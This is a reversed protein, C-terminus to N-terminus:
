FRTLKPGDDGKAGIFPRSNIGAGVIRYLRQPDCSFSIAGTSVRTSDVEKWGDATHVYVTYEEEPQFEGLDCAKELECDFADKGADTGAPNALEVQKGAVLAILRDKSAEAQVCLIFDRRKGVDKFTVKRGEIKSRAVVRWEDHNWVCLAAKEGTVGEDLTVTVDMVDTNVATIDELKDWTKLYVKVAKGGNGNKAGDISPIVTWAHNGDGHGWWPTFAQAAPFGAARLMCNEVNSCDECRGEHVALATLMGFDEWTTDGEYQFFDYTAGRALDIAKQADGEKLERLEPELAEFFHRRWRQLPEGTGRPSLVQQLFDKDECKRGWPFDLRAKTAYFVNEYFTRADMTQLDKVSLDSDERDFDMTDMRSILWVAAWQNAIPHEGAGLASLAIALEAGGDKAAKLNERARKLTDEDLAHKDDLVSIAQELVRTPDLKRRADVLEAAEPAGFATDSYLRRLVRERESTLKRDSRKRGDRFVISHTEGNSATVILHLKNTAFNELQGAEWENIRIHALIADPVQLVEVAKDIRADGPECEDFYKAALYERVSDPLDLGAPTSDVEKASTISVAFCLSLCILGSQVVSRM